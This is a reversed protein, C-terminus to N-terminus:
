LRGPHDPHRPVKSQRHPALRHADGRVTGALADHPALNGVLFPREDREPLKEPALRIRLGLRHEREDHPFVYEPLRDDAVERLRRVEQECPTPPLRPPSWSVSSFPARCM